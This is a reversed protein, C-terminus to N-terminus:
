QVNNHELKNLFFHRKFISENIISPKRRHDKIEM